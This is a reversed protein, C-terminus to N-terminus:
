ALIAQTVALPPSSIQRSHLRAQLPDTIAQEAMAAAWDDESIQDADVAANNEINEMEDAM